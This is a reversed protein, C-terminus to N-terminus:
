YTVSNTNLCLDKVPNKTAGSKCVVMKTITTKIVMANKEQYDRCLCM